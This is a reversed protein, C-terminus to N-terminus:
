VEQAKKQKKEFEKLDFYYDKSRPTDRLAKELDAIGADDGDLFDCFYIKNDVNEGELYGYYGYHRNKYIDEYRTILGNIGEPLAARIVISLNQERKIQTVPYAVQYIKGSECQIFIKVELAIGLGVNELGINIARTAQSSTVYCQKEIAGTRPYPIGAQMILIPRVSDNREKNARDRGEKISLRLASVTVIISFMALLLPTYGQLLEKSSWGSLEVVGVICLSVGIVILADEALLQVGERVRRPIQM